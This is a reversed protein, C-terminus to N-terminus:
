SGAELPDPTEDNISLEHQEIARKDQFLISAERLTRYNSDLTRLWKDLDLGNLELEPRSMMQLDEVSDTGFKLTCPAYGTASHTTTNMVYEVMPIAYHWEEFEIERVKNLLM